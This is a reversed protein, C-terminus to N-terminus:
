AVGRTLELRRLASALQERGLRLRSYATAVPTGMIEAVEPITHGELDHLTIVTRKELDLMAMGEAFLQQAQKQSLALDPSEGGDRREIAEEAVEKQQMHLRRHGVAIRWAIGKLWPGAAKAPDYSDFRRWATLFVDHTLDDALAGRAGLRYLFRWVKRFEDRYM